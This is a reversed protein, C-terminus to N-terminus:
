PNNALQDANNAVKVEKYAAIGKDLSVAGVFVGVMFYILDLVSSPIVPLAWNRITVISILTIIMLVFLFLCLRKTSGQQDNPDSLTSKIWTFFEMISGGFTLHVTALVGM